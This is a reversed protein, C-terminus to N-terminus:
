NKIGDWLAEKQNELVIAMEYPHAGTKIQFIKCFSILVIHITKSLEQPSKEDAYNQLRGGIYVGDRIGLFAEEMEMDFAGFAAYIGVADAVLEDWVADVKKPFMRRCIFHTCEHYKRIDHSYALWQEKTFGFHKASINSYPGCSLVILSDTYNKKDATFRRFEALWDPFLNGKKMEDRLFAEKHQKIKQWNNLGDFIAAGQTKPVEYPMCRNGIIHLFLEFDAREHLTLVLVPGAPTEETLLSDWESKIFHSLEKKTANEGKLVIKKYLEASNEGPILYLQQYIVALKELVDVGYYANQNKDEAKM